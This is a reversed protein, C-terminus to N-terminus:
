TNSPDLYTLSQSLNGLESPISGMLMNIGLDLKQLLPLSGLSLPINGALRNGGLVLKKLSSIKAMSTCPLIGSLHEIDWLIFLPAIFGELGLGCYYASGIGQRRWRQLCGREVWLLVCRRCCYILVLVDVLGTDARGPGPSAQLGM